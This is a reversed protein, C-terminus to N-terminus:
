STFSNWIVIGVLCQTFLISLFIKFNMTTEGPKAGIFNMYVGILVFFYVLIAKHDVLISKLNLALLLFLSIGQLIAIILSAQYQGFIVTVTQKKSIRDSPEDALSTGIACALHSPMLAFMINLPLSHGGQGIYSISPLIIGLGIAQLVEGGGRYSLKIPPYSYMWLLLLAVISLFFVEWSNCFFSLILGLAISLLFMLYHAKKLQGIRLSQEILVRSGGSFITSTKNIKDTEFDAVDNGFVIYLQLCIGFLGFGAVLYWNISSFAKFYLAHGMLLSLALYLQSPLRAAKLWSVM